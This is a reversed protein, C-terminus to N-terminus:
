PEDTGGGPLPQVKLAADLGSRRQLLRQNTGVRGAVAYEPRKSSRQSIYIVRLSHM